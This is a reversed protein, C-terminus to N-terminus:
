KALEELIGALKAFLEASRKREAETLPEDNSKGLANALESAVVRRVSVLVDPLLSAGAERVRRLLERSSPVEASVSLKAAERYLAALLLVDDPKAKDLALADRVSQRLPDPIPPPPPPPPPVAPGVTVVERKKSFKQTDFNVVFATATYKGPAGNFHLYSYEGDSYEKLKVPEPTVDWQVADGKELKYRLVAFSGPPVPNEEAVIDGARVPLALVALAALSLTFQRM